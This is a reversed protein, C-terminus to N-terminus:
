ILKPIQNIKQQCVELENSLQTKEKRLQRKEKKHKELKKEYNKITKNLDSIKEEYESIIKQEEPKLSDNPKFFNSNKNEELSKKPKKKPQDLKEPNTKSKVIPKVENQSIPQKIKNTDNSVLISQSITKKYSGPKDCNM